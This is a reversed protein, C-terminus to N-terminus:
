KAVVCGYASLNQTTGGTNQFVFVADTGNIYADMLRINPGFMGVESLYSDGHLRSYGGMYSSVGTPYPMMGISASELPTATGIVFCGAYGQLAVSLPGHLMARLVQNGSQGLAVLLNYTAGAGIAQSNIAFRKSAVIQHHDAPTQGSLLSHDTVM